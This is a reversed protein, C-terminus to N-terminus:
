IIPYILVNDKVFAATLEFYSAVFCRYDYQPGFAEQAIWNDMGMQSLM